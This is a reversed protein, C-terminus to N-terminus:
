AALHFEEGFVESCRIPNPNCKLSKKKKAKVLKGNKQHKKLVLM